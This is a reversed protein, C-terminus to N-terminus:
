SNRHQEMIKIFDPHAQFGQSIAKDMYEIAKAYEQNNYYAVALNNNGLSFDPAKKVLEEGTQLFANILNAKAQVIDPNLELAKQLSEIAKDTEMMQLYAFGLNAYGRAYRPEIEIAKLNAMVVQDLEGKEFYIYGLNVWAEFMRGSNAIAEQFAEIAEDLKGQEMLAVGLNYHSNACEPNEALVAKQQAIFEESDQPEKMSNRM